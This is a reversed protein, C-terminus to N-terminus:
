LRGASAEDADPPRDSLVIPYDHMFRRVILRGVPQEHGCGQLAVNSGRRQAGKALLVDLADELPQRLRTLWASIAWADLLGASRTHCWSADFCSKLCNKDQAM